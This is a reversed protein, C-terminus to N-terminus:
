HAESAHLVYVERSEFQRPFELFKVTCPGRYHLAKTNSVMLVDGPALMIDRSVVLAAEQIRSFVVEGAACGRGMRCAAARITEPHYRITGDAVIRGRWIGTDIDSAMDVDSEHLYSLTVEDNSKRLEALLDHLRAVRLNGYSEGAPDPKLCQMATLDPPREATNLDTHFHGEKATHSLDSTWPSMRFHKVVRGGRYTRFVPALALVALILSAGNAPLGRVVVHDYARYLDRLQSRLTLWDPSRLFADAMTGSTVAMELQELANSSGSQEAIWNLVEASPRVEPTHRLM